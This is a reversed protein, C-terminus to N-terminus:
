TYIWYIEAEGVRFDLLLLSLFSILFLLLLFLLFLLILLSTTEGLFFLLAPSPGRCCIDLVCNIKRLLLTRTNGARGGSRQQGCVRRSAPRPAAWRVQGSVWRREGRRWAGSYGCRGEERWAVQSGGRVTVM